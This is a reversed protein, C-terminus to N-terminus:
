EIYGLSKLRELIIAQDDEESAAALEREEWPTAPAATQGRVPPREQLYSQEFL